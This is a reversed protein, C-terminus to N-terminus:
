EAAVPLPGDPMDDEMDNLVDQPQSEAKGPGKKGTLKQIRKWLVTPMALM